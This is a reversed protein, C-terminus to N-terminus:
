KLKLRRKELEELKAIQVLLCCDGTLWYKCWEKCPKDFRMKLFGCSMWTM